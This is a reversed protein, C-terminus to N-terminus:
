KLSFCLVTIGIGLFMLFGVLIFIFAPPITLPKTKGDDSITANNTNNNNNNNTLQTLVFSSECYTCKYQQSALRVTENSGCSPCQIQQVIM